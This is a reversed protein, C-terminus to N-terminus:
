IACTEERWAEVMRIVQEIQEPTCCRVTDILARFERLWEADHKSIAEALARQEDTM